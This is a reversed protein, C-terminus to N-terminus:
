YCVYYATYTVWTVTRGSGDTHWYQAPYWVEHCQRPRPAVPTPFHWIAAAAERVSAAAALVILTVIVMRKM